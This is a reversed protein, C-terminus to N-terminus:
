NRRVEYFLKVAINVGGFFYFSRLSNVAMLIENLWITRRSFVMLLHVIKKITKGHM